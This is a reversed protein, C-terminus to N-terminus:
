SPKHLVYTVVGWIQFQDNNTVEIAKFSKNEAKLFYRNQYKVFRKVTFEGEIIAVIIANPKAYLSKDVILIDDPYIGVDIMSSGEVRVFFTASPHKILLQDLSLNGELYDDAPSPFGASISEFYPLPIQKFLASVEASNIPILKIM